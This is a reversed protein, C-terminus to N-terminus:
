VCYKMPILHEGSPGTKLFTEIMYEFRWYVLVQYQIINCIYIFTGRTHIIAMCLRRTRIRAAAKLTLTIVTICSTSRQTCTIVTICSTSRQTCTIVTICSTSRQTCTIVTICSTSRQTCTSVTICSTSRQICALLVKNYLSMSRDFTDVCTHICAYM